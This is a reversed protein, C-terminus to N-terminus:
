STRPVWSACWGTERVLGQAFLQCGGRGDPGPTYLQCNGCQREAVPSEHVYQLAAVMPAIAEIETVLAESARDPTQTAPAAPRAEPPSPTAPPSVPASDGQGDEGCGTLVSGSAPLAAIALAGCGARLLQRRQIGRPIKPHSM